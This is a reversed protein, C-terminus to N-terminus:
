AIRVAKIWSSCSVAATSSQFAQLDYKTTNTVNMIWQVQVSTPAANTSLGPILNTMQGYSVGGTAFRAGIRGAKCSGFNITGVMMYTGPPLTISAGTNVWAAHKISVNEKIGVITEGIKYGNHYYDGRTSIDGNKKLLFIDTDMVGADSHKSTGLAIIDENEDELPYFRLYKQTTVGNDVSSVSSSLGILDIVWKGIKGGFANLESTKIGNADWTGNPTRIEGSSYNTLMGSICDGNSDEVYNTSKIIGTISSGDTIKTIRLNTIILQIYTLSSPVGYSKAICMYFRFDKVTAMSEPMSLAWANSTIKEFAVFPQSGAEATYLIKPSLSVYTKEKISEFKSTAATYGVIDYDDMTLLYKIGQPNGSYAYSVPVKLNYEPLDGVPAQLDKIFTVRYEEKKDSKSSWGLDKFTHMSLQSLNSPDGMLIKSVDLSGAQIKGGNIQVTGPIYINNAIGDATKQANNAKNWAEKAAEYSSSLSVQSYYIGGNTMITQDVFYLRNTAGNQYAPETKTWGSPIAAGDTPKSPAAASASQLKYYRTVSEIDIIRSITIQARPKKVEAM